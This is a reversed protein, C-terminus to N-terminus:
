LPYVIPAHFREVADENQHKRCVKLTSTRAQRVRELRRCMRLRRGISRWAMLMLRNRRVAILARM